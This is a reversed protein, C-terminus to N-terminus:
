HTRERLVHVGKRRTARSLSRVHGSDMETTGFSLGKEVGM